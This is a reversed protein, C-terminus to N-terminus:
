PLALLPALPGRLSEYTSAKVQMALEQWRESRRNLTRLVEPTLRSLRGLLSGMLTEIM